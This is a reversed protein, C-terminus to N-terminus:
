AFFALARVEISERPPVGAPTTPDVFSAHATFRARGDTASDYTKFVLAEDRTMRPFYAWRHAPNYAVHYIEGIRDPHRREAAILDGAALSGADCIALPDALVPGRAARWVQIIAVRHRLLAAAEGAPLLDRVRQPGSWETYDNHVVRVPERLGAEQQATEDGTRLTHDFILVRSAGTLEGVLREVEQYYTARLAAEDFLDPVVSDHRVLVYGDRDLALDGTRPRDDRISVTRDEYQGTRRRLHGGPRDSASVPKEGTDVCYTLVAEVAAAANGGVPDIM